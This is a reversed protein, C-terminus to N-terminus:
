GGTSLSPSVAANTFAARLEGNRAELDLVRSQLQEVKLAHLDLGIQHAAMGLLEIEDPRYSDGSPKSALLIFGHLEARHVFPLALAAALTSGSEHLEIVDHEARMVVVAKEDCDIRDPAGALDGTMRAYDDGDRLYLACNAGCSFRCWEAVAAAALADPKSIFAAHRLFRRLAAENAHWARFLLREVHHQVFARVRHFLVFITLAVGANVVATAEFSEEPLIRESVWEILGFVLLLGFSIIGYVLTRNIAFGLDIVKHKLIAYAFLAPAAIAILFNALFILPSSEWNPDQLVGSLTVYIAQAFVFMLFGVLLFGFRRNIESVSRQWGAYIIVLTFLLGVYNSISWFISIITTERESTFGLWSYDYMATTLAVVAIYIPWIRRVRQSVPGLNEEYFRVAFALSAVPALAILSLNITALFAFNAPNSTWLGPEINLVGVTIQLIGLWTVSPTGRGVCLFFVGVLTIVLGTIGAVLKAISHAQSGRDLPMAVAAVTHRSMRGDHELSFRVQEGIRLRRVFDFRRDFAIHDGNAVGAQRMPSDPGMDSIQVYGPAFGPTPVFTAALTGASTQLPGSWLVGEADQDLVYLALLLWLLRWLWRRNPQKTRDSTQTLRSATVVENM